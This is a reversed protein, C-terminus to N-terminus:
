DTTDNSHHRPANSDFIRIDFFVREGRCWFARTIIDARVEVLVNGGISQQLLQLIQDTRVDNTVEQLMESINDRLENHRLAM